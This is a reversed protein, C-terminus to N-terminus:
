RLAGNGELLKSPILQRERQLTDLLQRNKWSRIRFLISVSPWAFLDYAVFSCKYRDRSLQNTVPEGANGAEAESKAERFKKGEM